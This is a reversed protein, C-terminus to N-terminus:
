GGQPTGWGGGGPTRVTLRDGVQIERGDSSALVDVTGDARTIFQEGCAGSSGGHLGFPGETRHQTLMSLSVPALFEIVREVGAGGQFQGKGGSGERLAFRHLRVPFRHEFVEPDTIRTNSM